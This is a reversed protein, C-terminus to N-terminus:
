AALCVAPSASSAPVDARARKRLNGRCLALPVRGSMNGAALLAGTVRPSRRMSSVQKSRTGSAAALWDACEAAYDILSGAHAALAIAIKRIAM